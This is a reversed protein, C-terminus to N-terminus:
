GLAHWLYNLYLKLQYEFAEWYTRRGITGGREVLSEWKDGERQVVDLRLRALLAGPAVGFTKEVPRSHRYHHSLARGSHSAFAYSPFFHWVFIPIQDWGDDWSWPPKPRSWGMKSYDRGAIYRGIALPRGDPTTGLPITEEFLSTGRGEHGFPGLAAAYWADFSALAYTGDVQTSRDARIPVADREGQWRLVKADGELADEDLVQFLRVGHGQPQSYVIPRGDELHIRGHVPETGTSVGSADYLLFRNHFWTEVQVVELSERDLRLMLGENDSDHYTWDTFWERLPHDYDKAHYLSYTLYYSDDTEATLEGYVAAHHPRHAPENEVNDRPDGNGDFDLRIPVDWEPHHALKQVIVPAYREVLWGRWAETDERPPTSAPRPTAPGPIRPERDVIGAALDSQLRYDAQEGILQENASILIEGTLLITVPIGICAYLVTHLAVLAHRRLPSDGARRRLWAPVAAVLDWILWPFLVIRLVHRL